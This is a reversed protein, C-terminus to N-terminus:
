GAATNLPVKQGNTYYTKTLSAGYIRQTITASKVYQLSGASVSYEVSATRESGSNESFTFVNGSQTVGSGSILTLFGDGLGQTTVNVVADGGIRDVDGSVSM